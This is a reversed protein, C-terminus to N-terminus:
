ILYWKFQRFLDCRKALFNKWGEGESGGPPWKSGWFSWFHGFFTTFNFLKGNRHGISRFSTDNSNDLYIVDKQWFIKKLRGGWVGRTAMKVGWFSWFHGFFTTFNFLKGNRHGISRFSTYNWEDLYNVDKQWFIKKVRKGWVGQPSNQGGLIDLLAWFHRFTSYIAM